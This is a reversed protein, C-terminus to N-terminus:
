ACLLHRPRYGQAHLYRPCQRYLRRAPRQLDRRASGPYQRDAACEAGRDHRHESRRASHRRLRSRCQGRHCRAQAQQHHLAGRRGACRRRVAHGASRRSNRYARFRRRLRRPQAGPAPRVTRGPLHCREPLRRDYREIPQRSRRREPRAHLYQGPRPREIAVTVNPLYRVYDDFTNVSLQKLTEATLAQITIPVNQINETRRQATVTIEQISDSAETDTAAAPAAQVLGAASGSLIAAIAYSLKQNSNM